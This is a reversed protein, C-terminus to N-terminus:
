INSACMAMPHCFGNLELCAASDQRAHKSDTSQLWREPSRGTLPMIGSSLKRTKPVLDSTACRTPRSFSKSACKYGADIPNVKTRLVKSLLFSAPDKCWAACGQKVKPDTSDRCYAMLANWAEKCAREALPEICDRYCM